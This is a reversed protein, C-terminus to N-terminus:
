EGDIEKMIIAEIRTAAEFIPIEREVAQFIVDRIKQQYDSMQRRGVRQGQLSNSDIYLGAENTDRL